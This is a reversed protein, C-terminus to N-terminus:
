TVQLKRSPITVPRVRVVSLFTEDDSVTLALGYLDAFRRLAVAVAQLDDYCQEVRYMVTDQTLCYEAQLTVSREDAALLRLEEYCAPALALFRCLEEAAHLGSEDSLEANLSHQAVEICIHRTQLWLARFSVPLEAGAAPEAMSETDSGSTDFYTDIGSTDFYWLIIDESRRHLVPITVAALPETRHHCTVADTSLHAHQFAHLMGSHAMGRVRKLGQPNKSHAVWSEMLLMRTGPVDFMELKPEGSCRSLGLRKQM